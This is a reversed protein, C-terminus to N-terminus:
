AAYLVEGYSVIQQLFQDGKALRDELETPTIILLDIPIRRQSDRLLRRVQVARQYPSLRSDKIILLDIDSAQVPLGYARSGFLIIRSPKYERTLTRVIKDLAAQVDNTVQM